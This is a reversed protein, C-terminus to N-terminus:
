HYTTDVYIIEVYLGGSGGDSIQHPIDRCRWKDTVTREMRIELTSRLNEYLVGEEEEENEAGYVDLKLIRETVYNIKEIIWETKWGVGGVFPVVIQKTEIM